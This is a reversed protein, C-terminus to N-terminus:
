ASSSPVAACPGGADITISPVFRASAFPLYRNASGRVSESRTRNTCSCWGAYTMPQLVADVHQINSLIPPEAGKLIRRTAAFPSSAALCAFLLVGDDNASFRALTAAPTTAASQHHHDCWQSHHSGGEVRRGGKGANVLPRLLASEQRAPFCWKNLKDCYMIACRRRPAEVFTIPVTGVQSCVTSINALFLCPYFCFVATAWGDVISPHYSILQSRDAAM